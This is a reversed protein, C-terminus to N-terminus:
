VVGQGSMELALRAAALAADGRSRQVAVRGRDQLGREVAVALEPIAEFAGGCLGVPLARESDRLEHAVVSGLESLRKGQADIISRATVDGQESARGVLTALAAIRAVADDGEILARSLEAASDVGLASRISATLSSEKEVRDLMRATARAAAAGIAFASGADGILAGYGGARESTGDAREGYAFSGTGAIIVMAPRDTTFARLAICGDHFVRVKVGEPSIALFIQELRKAQEPRGAGAAGVCIAGARGNSTLATVLKRANEEVAGRPSTLVNGGGASARAIEIGDAGLLVGTMHTAGADIGIACSAQATM